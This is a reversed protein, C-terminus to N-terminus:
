SVCILDLHIDCKNIDLKLGLHIDKFFIWKHRFGLFSIFVLRKDCTSQYISLLDSNKANQMIEVLSMNISKKKKVKSPASNYKQCNKVM